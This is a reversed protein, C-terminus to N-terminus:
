CCSEIALEWGIRLAMTEMKDEAAPEALAVQEFAEVKVPAETCSALEVVQAEESDVTCVVLKDVLVELFSRVEAVVVLEKMDQVIALKGGSTAEDREAWELVTLFLLAVASCRELGGSGATETPADVVAPQPQVQTYVADHPATGEAGTEAM